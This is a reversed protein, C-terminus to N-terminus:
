KLKEFTQFSLWKWQCYSKLIIAVKSTVECDFAILQISISVLRFSRYTYLCLIFTLRAKHGTGPGTASEAKEYRWLSISFFVASMVDERVTHKHIYSTKKEQRVKDTSFSGALNLVYPWYCKNQLKFFMVLHTGQRIMSSPLPRRGGNDLWPNSVYNRYESSCTCGSM